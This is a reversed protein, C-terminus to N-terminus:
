GCARAAARLIPEYAAPDIGCAERAFRHADTESAHPHERHYCEHAIAVAIFREAQADGLLARVATVARANVRIADAAPDYEAVLTARGWTGLEAIEVKM